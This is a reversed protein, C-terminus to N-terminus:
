VHKTGAEANTHASVKFDRELYWLDKDTEGLESMTTQIEQNQQQAVAAMEVRIMDLAKKEKALDAQRRAM